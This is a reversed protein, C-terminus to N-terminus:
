SNEGNRAKTLFTSSVTTATTTMIAPTDQHTDEGHDEHVDAGEPLHSRIGLLEIHPRGYATGASLCPTFTPSYVVGKSGLVMCFSPKLGGIYPNYSIVGLRSPQPNGHYMSHRPYNVMWTKQVTAMGGLNVESTLNTSCCYDFRVPKKIGLSPVFTEIVVM